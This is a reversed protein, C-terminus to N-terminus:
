SRPILKPSVPTLPIPPLAPPNGPPKVEVEEDDEYRYSIELHRAIVDFVSQARFPKTVVDNCGMALVMQRHHELAHASLSIIVPQYGQPATERIRSAAESGNLHPMEEDMLVLHPRWEMTQDVAASGDSADQLEFGVPGLIHRLLLRNPQHDDAILIRIPGLGEALGTVRRDRMAPAVEAGHHAATGKPLNVSRAMIKATFRSGQGVVSEVFIDGGLLQAFTRSIPLGLGTGNSIKRGASAQQYCTFLRDIEQPAIGPGTDIVTFEIACLKSDKGSRDQLPIASIQLEVSGSATYRIANSVLNLLIQRLKTRDSRIRSPMGTSQSIRFELGKRKAQTALIDRITELLPALDFPEEHKEMEGSEIKSLDLIENIVECLHEGSHHITEVLSRQSVTLQSDCALQETFGIISSLPTRLEHSMKALFDSKAQSAQEAQVQLQRALATEARDKAALLRQEKVRLQHTQWRFGTKALVVSLILIGVYGALRVWWFQWWAPKLQLRLAPQPNTWTVGDFSKRVQMLFTDFPLDAYSLAGTAGLDRWEYEHGQMLVQHRPAPATVPEFHITLVSHKPLSLSLRLTQDAPSPPLSVERRDGSEEHIEVRTVNARASAAQSSSPASSIALLQPADGTAGAIGCWCLGLGLTRLKPFTSSRIGAM